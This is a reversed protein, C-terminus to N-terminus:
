ESVFGKVPATKILCDITNMEDRQAKHETCFIAHFFDTIDTVSKIVEWHIKHVMFGNKQRSCPGTIPPHYLTSSLSTMPVVLLVASLFISISWTSYRGAGHHRLAHECWVPHLYLRYM